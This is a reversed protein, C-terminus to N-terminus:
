DMQASDFALVDFDAWDVISLGRVQPRHAGVCGGIGRDDDTPKVRCSKQHM